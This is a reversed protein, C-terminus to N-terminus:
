TEIETGKYDQCGIEIWDEVLEYFPLRHAQGAASFVLASLSSVCLVCLRLRKTM